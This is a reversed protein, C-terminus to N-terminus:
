LKFYSHKDDFDMGVNENQNSEYYRRRKERACGIAVVTHWMGNIHRYSAASRSAHGALPRPLNRRSASFFEFGSFHKYIHFTDSSLRLSARSSTTESFVINPSLSRGYNGNESNRKKNSVTMLM